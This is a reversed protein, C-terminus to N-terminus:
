YEKETNQSFDLWCKVLEYLVSAWFTPIIYEYSYSPKGLFGQPHIHFCLTINVAGKINFINSIDRCFYVKKGSGTKMKLDAWKNGACYVNGLHKWVHLKRSSEKLLLQNKSLHSILLKIVNDVSTGDNRCSSLHSIFVKGKCIGRMIDVPWKRPELQIRARPPTTLTRKSQFRYVHSVEASRVIDASCIAVLHM